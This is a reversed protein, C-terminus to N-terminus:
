HRGATPMVFAVQTLTPPMPKAPPVWSRTGGLAVVGALAAAALAAAFGELGLWPHPEARPFAWRALRRLRLEGSASVALPVVALPLQSVLEDCLEYEALRRSCRACALAHGRVAQERAPELTGDLLESLLRKAHAHRV